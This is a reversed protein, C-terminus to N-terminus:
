RPAMRRRIARLLTAAAALSLWLALPPADGFRAYVTPPAAPPLPSDIWSRTDLPLLDRIRGHADIMASVGTNAARAVPLGQEIARVRAQALHQRPGASDGFWSDNTVQLMWAAGRTAARVEAPFIMEYCILPAVPPLGPLALPPSGAGPTFGSLGEGLTGLGIAGLLWAYPVYEGFPTLHRKDYTALLRGADDQFMLSNFLRRGRGEGEARVAGAALLGGAPTAEAAAAVADPSDLYLFPVAVEPWVVLAPPREGRAETLALLDRFIPVMLEPRWRDRQPVNPQVLRIVPGDAPETAGALRWAGWGWVGVAVLGALLSPRWGAAVSAAAAVTLGALAYSGTVSAAQMVPTEVWAYAQLGWPFGTLVSGRALDALTMAAGLALPRAWGEPWVRRAAAFAGAWFAALVAALTAVAVPALPAHWWIREAEVLFANAVWWVGTLFFGFGAWWGVSAASRPSPAADVLLLLAPWAIFLFPWLGYPPQAATLAAGLAFALGARRWGVLRSLAAAIRRLLAV